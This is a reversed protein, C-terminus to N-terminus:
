RLRRKRIAKRGSFTYFLFCSVIPHFPPARIFCERVASKSVSASNQQRSVPQLLAILQKRTFLPKTTTTTM